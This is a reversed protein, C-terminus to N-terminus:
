EFSDIEVLNQSLMKDDDFVYYGRLKKGALAQPLWYRDDEWMNEWPLKDLDRWFPDAEVSARPEGEWSDTFFAEGYLSYGSTFQFRLEMRKEPSLPTMSVEEQCERVAAQVPSEGQEIRGGPANIKGKGLGTKKVILLLKGQERDTIYVIVARESPQWTDWDINEYTKM